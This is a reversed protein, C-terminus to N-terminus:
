EFQVWGDDDIVLPIKNQECWEVLDGKIRAWEPKAWEPAAKEWRSQTPFYVTPVGMTMDIIFTQDWLTCVLEEKWRPQFNVKSAAM